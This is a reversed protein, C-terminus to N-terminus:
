VEKGVRKRWSWHGEPNEALMRMEPLFWVDPGDDIIAYEVALLAYRVAKYREGFANWNLAAIHYAVTRGIWLREQEYLSVLLDGAEPDVDVATVGDGGDAVPVISWDNLLKILSNIHDLRADSQDSLAPPLSCFSCSCHFGWTHQLAHMRDARKQRVDIYNVSLEDGPFITTAAHVHHRLTHPDFYYLTTPRCDHNIQQTPPSHTLRVHM